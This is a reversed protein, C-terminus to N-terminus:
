NSARGAPALIVLYELIMESRVYTSHTLVALCSKLLIRESHDIALDVAFLLYYLRRGSKNIIEAIIALRM